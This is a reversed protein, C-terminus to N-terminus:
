AGLGVRLEALERTTLGHGGRFRDLLRGLRMTGAPKAGPRDWGALRLAAIAEARIDEDWAEIDAASLM